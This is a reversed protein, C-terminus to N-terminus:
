AEGRIRNHSKWGQTMEWEAEKAERAARRELRRGKLEWDEFTVKAHRNHHNIVERSVPRV